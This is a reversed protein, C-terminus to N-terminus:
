RKNRLIGTEKLPVVALGRSKLEEIIVSLAAVVKEPSGPAAGPATDSDHFVLIAGDALRRLTKQIISQPTAKKTWDWSMYTWLIFKVGKKRCYIPSFLNFLGWAPRFYLPKQGTVEEVALIAKDIERATARPGLLWAPKHSYGHVGIEHGAAAIRRVIEPHERAKQGVLFFCAKIQHKELLDLIRPTYRPDPGDDFTIAVHRRGAPARSVAGIGTLRILATPVVGYLLFIVLFLKTLSVDNM